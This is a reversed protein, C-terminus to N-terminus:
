QGRLLERGELFAPNEPTAQLLREYRSIGSEHESMLAIRPGYGARSLSSEPKELHFSEGYNQKWRRDWWLNALMQRGIGQVSQDALLTAKEFILTLLRGDRETVGHHRGKGQEGEFVGRQQREVTTTMVVVHFGEEADVPNGGIRVHPFNEIGHIRLLQPRQKVVDKAFQLTALSEFREDKMFIAIQKAGVAGAEERRGPDV